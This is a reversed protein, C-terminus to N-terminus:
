PDRSIAIGIRNGVKWRKGNLNIRGIILSGTGYNQEIYSLCRIVIYPNQWYVALEQDANENPEAVDDKLLLICEKLRVQWLLARILVDAQPIDDSIDPIAISLRDVDIEPFLAEGLRRLDEAFNRTRSGRIELYDTDLDMYICEAGGMRRQAWHTLPYRKYKKLAEDRIERNVTLFVPTRVGVRDYTFPTDSSINSGMEDSEDIGGQDYKLLLIQPTFMFHYIKLRLEGPLGMLNFTAHQTLNPSSPLIKPAPIAVDGYERIYSLEPRMASRHYSLTPPEM